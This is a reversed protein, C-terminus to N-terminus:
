RVTLFETRRFESEKRCFRSIKKKNKSGGGSECMIKSEMESELTSKISVAFDFIRYSACTSSTDEINEKSKKMHGDSEVRTTTRPFNCCMRAICENLALM